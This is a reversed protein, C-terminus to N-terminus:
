NFKEKENQQDWNLKPLYAQWSIGSRLEKQRVEYQGDMKQTIMNAMISNNGSKGM